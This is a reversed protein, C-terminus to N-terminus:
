AIGLKARLAQELGDGNLAAAAPTRGEAPVHGPTQTVSEALRAAQREVTQEDTGTLFLAADEDNIGYKAAIRFRLAEAKASSAEAESKALRDALKQAESKGAEEVEDLRKAKDANEKSRAEWKRAEAKWDTKDEGAPEQAPAPPATTSSTGTTPTTFTVTSLPHGAPLNSTTTTNTTTPTPTTDSM